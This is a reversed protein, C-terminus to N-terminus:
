IRPQWDKGSEVDKTGIRTGSINKKTSRIPKLTNADKSLEFYDIWGFDPWSVVFERSKASLCKWEGKASFILWAGDATKDDNVIWVPGHSLQWKGVIENCSNLLNQANKIGENAVVDDPFSKLLLEYEAIAKEYNENELYVEAKNIHSDYKAKQEIETRIKEEDEKRSREEDLHRQKEREKAKKEKLLKQKSKEQKQIEELKILRKEREIAEANRRREIEIKNKEEIEQQEIQKELAELEVDTVALVPVLYALTLILSLTFRPTTKAHHTKNKKLLSTMKGNVKM